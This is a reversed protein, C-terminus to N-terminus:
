TADKWFFSPESAEAVIPIGHLESTMCEVLAQNAEDAEDEPVVAVLEDHVPLLVCGGWRTGSWRVLADILLERATGQICYNPAKHPADQDLHVVRGAYTPFQTHGSEVAGRVMRSWETYGPMAADMADVVAQAENMPSGHTRAMGEVGQGYMRGFVKRKSDYRHAKTANPGYALRAIEWHLDRDPDLVTAMLSPCQSLAAAVRIEVSAFDASILLMGPDATISARFGGERPVQQLNPRVCSMRGTDASLTYVTPRARGDGHEVLVEYPELFLGLATEAKQYDLRARIFDGLPGEAKAYPLVASEAVSPRGTKTAPLQAGLGIAVAGVQQDSGPNDVGFGRLREGADALAARQPGLMDQVHEGDIRLGHYAVRATMRQALRERDLIEPEVAPLRKAIAADDLVDGAAYRIMTTSTPDAQAWGSRALPTTVKTNTLWKGARFLEARAKDARPSVAAGVLIYAALRKLDPDSGSSAPDALKAPIVTDHMRTWAEELDDVLGAVALPILDATASHAHLVPVRAVHRRVVDAQDPDSPDLDVAFAETGLQVTRLAYDRHGIPYGTHEVDVTLEDTVTSLLADADAVTTAVVQADRTVLAPLPVLPGGAAEIAAARERARKEAAKETAQATRTRSPKPDELGDDAQKQLDPATEPSNASPDLTPNSVPQPKPEGTRTHTPTHTRLTSELGECGEGDVSKQQSVQPNVQSPDESHGTVSGEGTPSGTVFEAPSPPANTPLYGGGMRVRLPRVNGIRTHVSGYGRRTLERGWKTESPMSDYRIGSRLCSARFEQYLERSPTGAEFPETEDDLWRQIPDQEAGFTEALYRIHEPAATVHGSHPDALWGAAEAMLISLVGPAEAQWTPGSFHGIAARTLWVEEPDGDCPILRVRARVAPDTLVPEDNATLVLTHTPQFTVPNTHMANATLEGGGTLQKLREQGAKAERPSEDIFSLRRGKLAFVISDHANTSPSLLKPNAAHAYSGLLSMVLSVLQTKGRGTEGLLIPLARDPYGTVAISLVRLAWARVAEDPWVSALFADWLPTPVPAPTLAATRLHPTAPDVEAVVPGDACARLDYPRGGAWLIEPDSDLVSLAVSAPHMGGSVLDDMKGAVARAGATSMLRARRASRDHQESGKEATPDGVPMLTAVSAVAWPSLRDHLEWREPTRLLWGKADWAFRLAPYSRELVAEAITQDMGANPDFAGTGILERVSVWRPPEVIQLDPDGSGPDAPAPAAASAYLGDAYMCPDNPIQVAGVVSVAKRASTLLAREFEEARDEGVTLTAWTEAAQMLAAAVGTHGGAALQVLHHTRETMTDHRSGADARQMLDLAQHQASTVEACPTRWDNRLQDLLAEGSARDASAVSAKAAGEALGHVWADPLLPFEDPKPPHDSAAGSPDFWTYTGADKHDSPWVVAYRHHRQIIEVDGTTATALRTAYKQPPVRYFYIRSPGDAERATSTWTPPLPGWLALHAAFTEAGHKQLGGKVYQDVDIGIVTEPMRLAISHDAHTKAWGVLDLPQTDRGEAGTFGGPPPTKTAAPVPLICPWGAEAYAAVHDAFVRGSPAAPNSV